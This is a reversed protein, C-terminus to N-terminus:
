RRNKHNIYWDYFVSGTKGEAPYCETGIDLIQYGSANMIITGSPHKQMKQFNRDYEKHVHGHIMYAPKYQQLLNNFCAFGHHPLDNLDGYGECPAHALLIDFGGTFALLGSLKRIRKKMEEESYMDIGDRYRLSGGLGLIRLGHFNYIRDDIDDCGLPPRRDYVGDHNGRVYLLPKNVMTTLFQLYDPNLDGCSLILDVGETKEPTYYDWLSREESDSVLLLKM